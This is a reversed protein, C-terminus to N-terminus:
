PSLQTEIEPVDAQTKENDGDDLAITDCVRVLIRELNPGHKKFNHGGVTGDSEREAIWTYVSGEDALELHYGGQDDDGHLNTASM